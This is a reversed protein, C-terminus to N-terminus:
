INNLNRIPIVYIGFICQRKWIYSVDTIFLHQIKQLYSNHRNQIYMYVRIHMVDTGFLWHNYQFHANLERSVYMFDVDTM